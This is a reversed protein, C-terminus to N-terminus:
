WLGHGRAALLGPGTAAPTAAATQRAMEAASAASCCSGGSLVSLFEGKSFLRHAKPSSSEQIASRLGSSHLRSMSFVCILLFAYFLISCFLFTSETSQLFVTSLLSTGTHMVCDITMM